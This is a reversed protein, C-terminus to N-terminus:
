RRKIRSSKIFQLGMEHPMEYTQLVGHEKIELMVM